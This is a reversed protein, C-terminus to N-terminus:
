RVSPVLDISSCLGASMGSTIFISWDLLRPDLGRDERGVFIEAADELEALVAAADLLLEGIDAVAGHHFVVQRQVLHHEVEVVAQLRDRL